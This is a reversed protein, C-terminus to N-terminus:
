AHQQAPALRPVNLRTAAERLDGGSVIDYRDFVSRTKHGSLRMAVQESIGARTFARIATRRLDHPFRGPCGAAICAKKWAVAFSTIATPQAAVILDAARCFYNVARVSPRVSGTLRM